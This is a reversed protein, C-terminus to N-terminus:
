LIKSDRWFGQWIGAAGAYEVAIDHLYNDEIMNFAEQQAPDTVDWSDVRGVAVAGASIDGFENGAIHSHQAGDGLYLAASGLHEFTCDRVTLGVVTHFSVAGPTPECNLNQCPMGTVAAIDGAPAVHANHHGSGHLVGTTSGILRVAAQQPVYGDRSNPGLWTSYSFRIGSLTINRLPRALSQGRGVILQELVPLVCDATAMDEGPRPKYLVQRAERDFYFTGAPSVAFGITPRSSHGYTGNDYINETRVVNLGKAVLPSAPTPLTQPDQGAQAGGISGGAGGGTSLKVNLMCPHKVRVQAKKGDPSPTVSAWTCRQETFLGRAHFVFEIDGINRWSLLATDDTEYVTEDISASGFAWAGPLPSPAVTRNARVGNVFLQRSYVDPPAAHVWTGPISPHPSWSSLRLGGVLTVNGADGPYAELTLGNDAPGLQLPDTLFVRGARIQVPRRGGSASRSLRAALIGREVTQFPASATGANSDHGRASDVVIPALSQASHWQQQTLALALLLPLTGRPM